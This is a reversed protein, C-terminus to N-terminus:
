PTAHTKGARGAGGRPPSSVVSLHRGAKFPGLCDAIRVRLRIAGASFAREDGTVVVCRVADDAEAEALADAIEVLLAKSLANLAKARDLTLQMVGDDPRAVQITKM